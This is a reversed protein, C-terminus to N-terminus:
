AARPLMHNIAHLCWSAIQYIIRRVEVGEVVKGGSRYTSAKLSRLTTPKDLNLHAVGEKNAVWKIVQRPTYGSGAGLGDPTPISAVGIPTDLFDQIPMEYADKVPQWSAILANFSFLLDAEVPENAPRNTWVCLKIDQCEAYRLLIPLDADCLLVRLQGAIQLHLDTTEREPDGLCKMLWRRHRVLAARLEDLEDETM